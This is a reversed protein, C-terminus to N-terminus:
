QREEEQQAGTEDLMSLDVSRRMLAVEKRLFRKEGQATQVVWVDAELRQLVGTFEKRGERARFLKVEVMQGAAKKADRENKIPRDLGASCVELFDYDIKEFLPMVARHFAECDDLTVGGPKDLYVRLYMGTAEKEFATELHEYGMSEALTRSISEAQEVPRTKKAM